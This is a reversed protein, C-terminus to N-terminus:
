ITSFMTYSKYFEQYYDDFRKQLISTRVDRMMQLYFHINHYTLLTGATYENVMFLHRIYARSHTHCVQCSCLPDLARKDEKFEERKISLPGVKTIAQGNRANRTPLVCDFMDLGARIGQLIDLPTGVGMLYRPRNKPMQEVFNNLFDVMEQNKEGVSLGGLAFGAFPLKLLAEMCRHRLDLDLGGQIIGFLVQHSKLKVECCRNAWLLTREVARGLAERTSPLAPCQDFAMVIDSGLARQIEMSREPTIMHFSGDIHSQFKVGEDSIKNLDSLSFIQYGGSDTLIAKPWAMFGHLGEGVREILEHGPRLYLHYTNGLIISPDLQLLQQQTLTKVTARTGVPMFVPTQINGHATFLEGARAKGDEADLQFNVSKNQIPM